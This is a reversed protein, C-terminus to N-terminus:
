PSIDATQRLKFVLKDLETRLINSLAGPLLRSDRRALRDMRDFRHEVLIRKGRRDTIRISMALHAYWADRQDCEELADVRSRLIWDPEAEDESLILRAFVNREKLYSVLAERIMHSPKKIWYEYNYFDLQYPSLRYVLRYGEYIRDVVADRVLITGPFPATSIPQPPTSIHLQYYRKETATTCGLWLMIVALAAPTLRKM